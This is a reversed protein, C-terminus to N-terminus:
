GPRTRTGWGTRGGARGPPSLWQYLGFGVLWALIMEPRVAPGRLRRRAHLAETSCGTPSCSASAAPRLVLRAPVPLHRLRRPRPRARRRDRARRSAVILLRQPVRPVVNQLSVATSYVNAFAEDSEDVTVALLALVSVVGGAVVAAPLQPRTPSTARSCLLVGLSYLWVVPVLYGLRRAGSRRARTRSFRTYDAALPTWSIVSALAPRRGALLPLGGKGAARWLADPRVQRDVWWTLYGLSALVFWVRVEARLPPRLRDARPARARGRRAGFLLTWLWQASASSATPSRAGRRERHHDARLGDLRPVPRREARDALYSGRQGLPARMLVM